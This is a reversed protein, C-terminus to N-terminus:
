SPPQKRLIISLIFTVLIGVGVIGIFSGFFLWTPTTQKLDTIYNNYYEIGNEEVIQAKNEVWKKENNEIFSQLYSPEVSTATYLGISGIVAVTMYTVFGISIGEWLFLIGKGLNIKYERIASFIFVFLLIIVPIICAKIPDPDFFTFAFFVLILLVSAVGGYRLALYVLPKKNM